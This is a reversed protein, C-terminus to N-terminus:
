PPLFPPIARKKPRFFRFIRGKKLANCIPPYGGKKLTASKAPYLQAGQEKKLAEFIELYAGKKPHRFHRSLCRALLAYAYACVRQLCHMQPGM